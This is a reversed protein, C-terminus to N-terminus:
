RGIATAIAKLQKIQAEDFSGIPAKSDSYNPGIDLTVCGGQATVERTWAIWKENPYRTDRKMWSKGLYSLVQWQSGNLWRGECTHTFPENLEGAVYDEAVTWRKLGVGPNFSVVAKPNGHKVAEAYLLSIEDNFGVWQYGGDFWWGAVADKYRDSWERIVEAWKEAFARDIKRDRNVPESPLGFAKVARLDRNPTQCPLYLMLRIGHPKLAAALEKPLDRRSCRENPTFGGMREYTANPANLQGSNQGLTFVFYRVGSEVLQRTVAQVDFVDILHANEVSPLFHVFAGIKAEHMWDTDPNKEGALVAGVGMILVASGVCVRKLM